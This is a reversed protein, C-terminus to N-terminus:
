FIVVITYAALGTDVWCTSLLLSPYISPQTSLGSVPYVGSGVSWGAVLGVPQFVRTQFLATFRIWYVYMNLVLYIDVITNM